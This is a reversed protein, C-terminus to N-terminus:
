RKFYLLKLVIRKLKAFINENLEILATEHINNHQTDKNNLKNKFINESNYKERKDQEEKKQNLSLIENIIEKQVETSFYDRYINVIIANAEKSINQKSLDVKPNIKFNYNKDMNKKYFNIIEIPIKKYDKEPFFSFIELVETYARAYNHNIM